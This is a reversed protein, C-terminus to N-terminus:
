APAKLRASTFFSMMAAMPPSSSNLVIKTTVIGTNMSSTGESVVYSRPRDFRVVKVLWVRWTTKICLLPVVHTQFAPIASRM